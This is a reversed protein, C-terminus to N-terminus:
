PNAPRRRRKRFDQLRRALRWGVIRSLATYLPGGVPTGLAEGFSRVKAEARRSLEPADVYSDFAILRWANACAARTRPSDERAILNKTGLDTSLFASEWAALSRRGSLSGAVDSRYYTRAEACHAVGPSALVLRSFFEFDNILSLKENWGGARAVVESPILWAAGHMMSDSMWLTVIWDIPALDRAVPGPTFEAESPDRTFRSWSGTALWGAPRRSLLEVQSAIKEPALLDDADLFEYYRGKAHRIGTNFAASQGANPQDIVRVGRSEYTKLLALSGDRSGDNVVIIEKHPWTQALASELTAGVWREANYCPILISVLPQDM